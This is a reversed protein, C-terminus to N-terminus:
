GGFLTSPAGRVGPDVEFLGGALAEDKLGIAACTVFMRDLKEGAFVCSTIQSAPLAITRDLKGDPTFRSLRSAGWHAVWLGDQSDTTMGDPGGWGAGFRIFDRKNSLEGAPSLDFAYITRAGTDTHYMVDGALNFAPGNCIKYHDDMLRWSFDPDLRYLAGSTRTEEDDMSGAWIRGRSDVKADNRRNTPRDPEPKAFMEIKLPDLTMTAFGSKFGAIFGPANQREIVWGIQEPMDWSKRAGDALSYRHLAPKKIDVFYIANDRASWIPGEGLLAGVPWVCQAESM